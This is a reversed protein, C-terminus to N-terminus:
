DEEETEESFIMEEIYKEMFYASKSLETYESRACITRVASRPESGLLVAVAGAGAANGVFEYKEVDVPPLLGIRRMSSARLHSGFGGAIVIRSISEEGVDSEHLLTRAGACVAAKALQIERIDKACIYINKEKDIMFVPNGDEDEGVYSAFAGAEDPDAILGTGDLLGTDLMVAVADVIGSGCIGVAPAHDVTEYVIKGDRVSVASIAGSIGAMGCAIHAGEFAPGAAASCFYLGKETSLGLEGNTGIDVFLVREKCADLGTAIMGCAIDGGVYSAFCPAFYVFAKENPLLGLAYADYEEGFLTPATFPAVSISVPNIGAAIHQMVTNGCIVAARVDMVNLGKEKCVSEASARISACIGKQQVALLSGDKMIKDMRSIVDAGYVSQPNKFGRVGLIEGKDMDCLYVAVTTTGIDVALGLNSVSGNERFFEVGDKYFVTEAEDRRTRLIPSPTYSVCKSSTQIRMAEDMPVIEFNGLLRCMCALRVGNELERETLFSKEREDPESIDGRIYMRCKGCTGNGGCPAYVSAETERFLTLATTGAETQVSHKKGKIWIIGNIMIGMWGDLPTYTNEHSIFKAGIIINIIYSNLLLTM